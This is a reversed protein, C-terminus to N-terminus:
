INKLITKMIEAKGKPTTKPGSISSAPYNRIFTCKEAWTMLNRKLTLM